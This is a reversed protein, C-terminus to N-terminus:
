MLIIVFFLAMNKNPTILRRSISLKPVFRRPPHRTSSRLVNLPARSPVTHAPHRWRLHQAKPHGICFTRHTRRFASPILTDSSLFEGSPHILNAPRYREYNMPFIITKNTFSVPHVADPLTTEESYKEKDDM